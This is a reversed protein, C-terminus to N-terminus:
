DINYIIYFREREEKDETVKKAEEIRNQSLLIGILKSMRAEGIEKGKAEGRAEREDFFRCMRLGEKEKESITHAVEEFRKDGTLVKMLKLFEDVHTIVKDDPVYEDDTYVKTFFDAVIRFDSRFMQVQEMSLRPIDFVHIRYDQIYEKLANTIEDGELSPYFCEKLNRPYSWLKEGFYLVITLVPYREKVSVRKVKGGVTKEKTKLLQSRYAAGDYGIIRFPMDKDPETQNEIGALLLNVGHGRWLKFTDREQEHLLEDDAKYQSLPSQDSLADETMMQKGGFVLVNFIDAFVDNLAIFNKENIDKQGM